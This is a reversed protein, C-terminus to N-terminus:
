ATEKSCPVPLFLLGCAVLTRTSDYCLRRRRQEVQLGPPECLRGTKESSRGGRAMCRRLPSGIPRLPFPPGIISTRRQVPRLFLCTWPSLAPLGPGLLSAGQLDAEDFRGRGADVDEGVAEIRAEAQGQDAGRELGRAVVHADVGGLRRGDVAAVDGRGVEDADRRGGRRRRGGVRQRILQPGGPEGHDDAAGVGAEHGVVGHGVGVVDGAPLAAVAEHQLEELREAALALELGDVPQGEPAVPEGHVVLQALPAGIEVRQRHGVEGQDHARLAHPLRRDHGAQPAREVAGEAGHRHHEAALVAHAAGLADDGLQLRLLRARDEEVVVVEGGVLPPELLEQPHHDVAADGQLPLGLHAGVHGAVLLQQREHLAGAAM